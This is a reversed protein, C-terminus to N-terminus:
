WIPVVWSLVDMYFRADALNYNYVAKRSVYEKGSRMNAVTTLFRLPISM